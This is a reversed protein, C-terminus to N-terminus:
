PKTEVTLGFLTHLISLPTLRYTQVSRVPGDGTLPEHGEAGWVWRSAQVRDYDATRALPTQLLHLVPGRAPLRLTRHKHGGTM